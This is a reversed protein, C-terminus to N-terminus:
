KNTITLNPVIRFNKYAIRAKIVDVADDKRKFLNRVSSIPINCKVGLIVQKLKLTDSFSEFYLGAEDDLERLDIHLRREGEYEWQEFKTLSLKEIYEKDKCNDITIPSLGKKYDVEHLMSKPIDFGLAIGRHKDAYHGWLLPNSWSKSFCIIGQRQEIEKKIARIKRRIERDSLDAAILEFPDNLEQYRSIKLRNLAINSIAYEASTLYYVRMIDKSKSSGKQM